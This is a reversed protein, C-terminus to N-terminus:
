KCKVKIRELAYEAGLKYATNWDECAGHKDNLFLNSRAECHGSKGSQLM